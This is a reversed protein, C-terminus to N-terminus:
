HLGSAPQDGAAVQAPESARSPEVKKKAPTPGAPTQSAPTQSAPQPSISQRIAQLFRAAQDERDFRKLLAPDPRYAPPHGTAYNELCKEIASTDNGFAVGYGHNVILESADSHVDGGISLIPVGAHLYEYIKGTLIGRIEPNNWDLFILGDAERQVQLIQARTLYGGDQVMSGLNWRTMISHLLDRHTTHFIVEIKSALDPHRTKLSSLAAFLPDPNRHALALAGTYILRIKRDGASTSAPRNPAPAGLDETDFGNEILLVPKGPFRHGLYEVFPASITSLMDAQRLTRKELAIEWSDFPWRTEFLDGGGWLDRYDAVWFFPVQRRLRAAILHAAAPGFSSVVVDYPWRRHLALGARVAPRTWGNTPCVFSGAKAARVLAQGARKIRLIPGAPPTPAPHQSPPNQGTKAGPSIWSMWPQHNAEIIEFTGLDSYMSAPNVPLGPRGRPTTLIKVEVGARAWYRALGYPRLAASRNVPPFDYSIILIRM